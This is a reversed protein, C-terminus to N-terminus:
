EVKIEVESKKRSYPYYRINKEVLTSEKGVYLFPGFPWYEAQESDGEGFVLKGLQYPLIIVETGVAVALIVPGVDRLASNTKQDSRAHDYHKEVNREDSKKALYGIGTALIGAVIAASFVTREDDDMKRFKLANTEKEIKLLGVYSVDKINKTLFEAFPHHYKDLEQVLVNVRREVEQHNMSLINSKVENLSAYAIEGINKSKGDDKDFHSADEIVEDISTYNDEKNVILSEQVLEESIIKEFSRCGSTVFISTSLLASTLINTLNRGKKKEFFEKVM